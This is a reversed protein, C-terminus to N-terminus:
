GHAEVSLRCCGCRQEVAPSVVVSETDGEPWRGRCRTVVSGGSVAVVRCYPLPHQYRPRAWDGPRPIM